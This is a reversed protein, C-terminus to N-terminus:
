AARRDSRRARRYRGGRRRPRAAWAAGTRSLFVFPTLLVFAMAPVIHAFTLAAHSAFVADLAAMQPPGTQSPHAIAVLRRVVVAVAVLISIWFGALLWLPAGRMESQEPGRRPNNAFSIKM